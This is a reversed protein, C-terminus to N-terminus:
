SQDSIFIAATGFGVFTLDYSFSELAPDGPALSKTWNGNPCTAADKFDQDSPISSSLQPVTLRGNEPSLNGTSTGADTIQSKVPVLKGGHNTCDVTASYVVSLTAVGNTNGIGAIEYDGSDDCTVSLDLEVVCRVPSGTQIHGGSPTGGANLTTVNGFIGPSVSFLPEAVSTPSTGTDSCAVAFALVAVPILRNATMFIEESPQPNLAPM